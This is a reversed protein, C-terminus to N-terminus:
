NSISDNGFIFLYGIIKKTTEFAVLCALISVLGSALAFGLATVGLMPTLVASLSFNAILFAAQLVLFAIKANCLVLVGSAALFLAHLLTGVIGMRLILFQDLRLGMASAIAPALLLLAASVAVQTSMIRVIGTWIMDSVAMGSSKAARLTAGNSLKARFRDMARRVPEEFYIALSALGPLASLQALFLASDYTPMHRFGAVSSQGGPGFWVIWKDAWIGMIALSAGVALPWTKRACIRLQVGAHRLDALQHRAHLFPALCLALCFVIGSTFCWVLASGSGARDAVVVSLVIAIILGTGFSLILRRRAKCAALVAFAVWMMASASTLLAFALTLAPNSLGLVLVVIVALAEATVGALGCVVLLLAGVASADLPTEADAVTRAAIIGLPAAIIPALMFAYVVALRMDELAEDTFRNDATWSILILTVIVLLWPGAALVLAAILRRLPKLIPGDLWWDAQRLVARLKPQSYPSSTM